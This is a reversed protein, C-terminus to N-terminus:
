KKTKKRHVPETLIPEPTTQPSSQPTNRNLSKKKGVAISPNFLVQASLNNYHTFAMNYDTYTKSSFDTIKEKNYDFDEADAYMEAYSFPGSGQYLILQNRNGLEKGIKKQVKLFERDFDKEKIKKAPVVVLPTYDKKAEDYVSKVKKNEFEENSFMRNTQKNAHQTQEKQYIDVLEEFTKHKSEGVERIHRYVITYAKQLEDFKEEARPDPSKDPHTVLALEKYRQKLEKKAQSTNHKNIKIHFISLAKVLDM